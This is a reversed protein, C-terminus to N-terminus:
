FLVQQYTKQAVDAIESMIKNTADILVFPNDDIEKQTKRGIQFSPGIYIEKKAFFGIVGEKFGYTKPGFCGIPVIKCGSLLAIVAAGRKGKLLEKQPNRHGEPFIVVVNGERILRAAKILSESAAPLYGIGEMGITLISSIVHYKFFNKQLHKAGIFYIKKKKPLLYLKFYAYLAAAIVLPDYNNQHNAVILFGENVPLNKLGEIKKLPTRTLSYVIWYLIKYFLM